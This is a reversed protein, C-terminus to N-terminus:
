IRIFTYIPGDVPSNNWIMKTSSLTLIYGDGFVLGNITLQPKNNSMKFEFTYSGNAYGQREQLDSTVNLIGNSGFEYIVENCSYDIENSNPSFPLSWKVLKWKGIIKNNAGKIASVPCKLDDDVDVKEDKCSLNFMLVVAILVALIKM